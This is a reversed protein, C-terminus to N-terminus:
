DPRNPYGFRSIKSTNLYGFMGGRQKLVKGVMYADSMCNWGKSITVARCVARHRRYPTTTNTSDGIGQKKPITAEEKRVVYELM